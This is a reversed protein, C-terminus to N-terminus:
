HRDAHPHECTCKRVHTLIIKLQMKAIVHAHPYNHTRTCRQISRVYTHIRAHTYTQTYIYIYTHINTYIHTHLHIYTYTYTHTHIYLYMYVCFKKNSKSHLIELSKM